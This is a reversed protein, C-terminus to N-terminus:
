GLQPHDPCDRLFESLEASLKNLILAITLAASTPLVLAAGTIMREVTM